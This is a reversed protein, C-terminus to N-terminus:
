LLKQKHKANEHTKASQLSESFEEEENFMDVTHLKDSLNLVELSKM